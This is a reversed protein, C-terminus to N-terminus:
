RSRSTASGATWSRTASPTYGVLYYNRLDTEVREFAQRLNNTSDFCMGGTNAPWRGGLGFQPDQRLVDENNEM